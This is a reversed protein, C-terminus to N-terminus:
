LAGRVNGAPTQEPAKRNHTVSHVCVSSSASSGGGGMMKIMMM